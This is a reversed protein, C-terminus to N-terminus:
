LKRINKFYKEKENINKIIQNVLLDICVIDNIKTCTKIANAKEQIDKLLFDRMALHYLAVFLITMALFYM